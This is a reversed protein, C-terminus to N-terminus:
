PIYYVMEMPLGRADKEPIEPITRFKGFGYKATVAAALADLIDDRAVDKKAYKLLAADVLEQCTSHVRHIVGLRENFGEDTRKYYNM